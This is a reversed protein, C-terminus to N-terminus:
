TQKELLQELSISFEPSLDSKHDEDVMFEVWTSIMPPKATTELSDLRRMFQRIM